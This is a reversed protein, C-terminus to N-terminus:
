CFTLSHKPILYAKFLAWSNIRVCKGKTSKPILSVKNCSPAQGACSCKTNYDQMYPTTKQSHLHKRWYFCKSNLCPSRLLSWVGGRQAWRCGWGPATSVSLGWPERILWHAGPDPLPGTEFDLTFLLQLLRGISVERRQTCVYLDLRACICACACVHRGYAVSMPFSRIESSTLTLGIEWTIKRPVLIVVEKWGFRETTKLYLLLWVAPDWYNTVTENIIISVVRARFLVTWSTLPFIVPCPERSDSRNLLSEIWPRNRWNGGKVENMHQKINHDTWMKLCDSGM